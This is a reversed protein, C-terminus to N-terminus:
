APAHQSECPPPLARPKRPQPDRHARPPLLPSWPRAHADRTAHTADHLLDDDATSVVEAVRESTEAGLAVAAFARVRNEEAFLRILQDTAM